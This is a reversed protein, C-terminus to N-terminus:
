YIEAKSSIGMERCVQKFVKGHFNNRGNVIYTQGMRYFQTIHAIEHLLVNKFNRFSSLIKPSLEIRKEWPNAQGWRGDSLDAFVVENDGYGYQKLTMRCYVEIEQTTAFM